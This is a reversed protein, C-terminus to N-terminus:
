PLPGGLGFRRIYALEPYKREVRDALIDPWAPHWLGIMCHLIEHAFVDADYDDAWQARGAKPRFEISMGAPMVIQCPSRGAFTFAGTGPMMKEFVERDVIRVQIDMPFTKEIQLGYSELNGLPAHPRTARYGFDGPGYRWVDATVRGLMFSGVACVSYAYLLLIKGGTTLASM